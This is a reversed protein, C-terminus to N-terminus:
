PRPQGREGGPEGVIRGALDCALAPCPCATRDRGRRPGRRAPRPRTGFGNDARARHWARYTAEPEPRRHALVFGKGRGDVDDGGEAIIKVGKGPVTRPM